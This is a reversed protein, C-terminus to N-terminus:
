FQKFSSKKKKQLNASFKIFILFLVVFTIMVMKLHLMIKDQYMRQM